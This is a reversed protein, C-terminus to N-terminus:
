RKQQESTLVMGSLQSLKEFRQVIELFVVTRCPWKLSSLTSDIAELGKLNGVRNISSYIIFLTICPLVALCESTGVALPQSLMHIVLNQIDNVNASDSRLGSLLTKASELLAPPLDTPLHRSSMKNEAIRLVFSLAATFTLTYARLTQKRLPVRFPM